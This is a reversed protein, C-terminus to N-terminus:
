AAAADLSWALALPNDAQRIQAIQVGRLGGAELRAAIGSVGAEDAAAEIMSVM